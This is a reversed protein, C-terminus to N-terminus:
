WGALQLVLMPGAGQRGFLSWLRAMIPPHWDDYRGRLVQDYRTVSDYQAYGPAFVLVSLGFLILTAIVIRLRHSHAETM